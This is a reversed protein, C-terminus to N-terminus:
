RAMTEWFRWCWMHWTTAETRKWYRVITMRAKLLLQYTLKWNGLLCGEWEPLRMGLLVVEPSNPIPVEVEGQHTRSGGELISKNQSMGGFYTIVHGGGRGGELM